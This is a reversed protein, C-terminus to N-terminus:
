APLVVANTQGDTFSLTSRGGWVDNGDRARYRASWHVDKEMVAERLEELSASATVEKGLL